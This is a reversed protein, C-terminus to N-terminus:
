VKLRGASSPLMMPRRSRNGDLRQVKGQRVPRQHALPKAASQRIERTTVARVMWDIVM